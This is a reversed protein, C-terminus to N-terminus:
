RTGNAPIHQRTAAVKRSRRVRSRGDGTRATAMWQVVEATTKVARATAVPVASGGADARKQSAIAHSITKAM